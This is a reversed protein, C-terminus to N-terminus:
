INLIKIQINVMKKKQNKKVIEFNLINGKAHKKMDM